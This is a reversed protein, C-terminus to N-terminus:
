SGVNIYIECVDGELFVELISAKKGSAPRLQNSPTM